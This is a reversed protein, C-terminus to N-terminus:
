KFSELFKEAKSVSENYEKEPISDAVIGSGAYFKIEGEKCFGTRIAISSDM